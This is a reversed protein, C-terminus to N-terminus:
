GEPVVAGFVPGSAWQLSSLSRFPLGGGVIGTDGVVAFPGGVVGLTGFESAFFCGGVLGVRGGGVSAYAHPM